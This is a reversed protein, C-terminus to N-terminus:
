FRERCIEALQLHTTIQSQIVVLQLTERCIKDLQPHAPLLPLAVRLIWYFHETRTNLTNLRLIGNPWFIFTKWFTLSSWKWFLTGLLFYFGWSFLSVHMWHWHLLWLLWLIWASYETSYYSYESYEPPTNIFVRFVRASCKPTNLPTNLPPPERPHSATNPYCGATIDGQLSQAASPPHSDTTPHCDVQSRALTTPSKYM